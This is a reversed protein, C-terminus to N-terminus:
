DVYRIWDALERWLTRDPSSLLSECRDGLAAPALRRIWEAAEHEGSFAKMAGQALERDVCGLAEILQHDSMQSM